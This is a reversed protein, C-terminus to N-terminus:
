IIWWQSSDSIVEVKDYQTSITYTSQNDINTDASLKVTNSSSDIKKVTLRINSSSSAAPLNITINGANADSLVVGSSVSITTTSDVTNVNNGLPSHSWLQTTQDYVLVDNTFASNVNVNHLDHIDPTTEPNVYITGQTAHSNLCYGIQVSADPHDPVASLLSGSPGLWVESGIPITSTDIERVIGHTTIYGQQNTNIDETAVGVVRKSKNANTSDAIGVTPRGAPGDASTIYVVTGNNINGNVNKARLVEEQGIQLNVNGGALGLDLTGDDDNWALQGEQPAPSATLDWQITKVNLLDNYNIDIDGYMKGGTLLLYNGASVTPNVCYTLLAYKGRGDTPYGTDSNSMNLKVFKGREAERDNYSRSFDIANLDNVQYTLINYKGRGDSPYGFYANHDTDSVVFKGREAERDNYSQTFDASIASAQTSLISFTIDDEVSDNQIKFINKFWNM